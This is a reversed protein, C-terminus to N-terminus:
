SQTSWPLYEINHHNFTRVTLDSLERTAIDITYYSMQNISNSAIYFRGAYFDGIIFDLYITEQFPLLNRPYALYPIPYASGTLKEPHYSDRICM